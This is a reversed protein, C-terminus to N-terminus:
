RKLKRLEKKAFESGPHIYLAQQLCYLKQEERQVLHFLWLWDMELNSPDACAQAFLNDGQEVLAPSVMVQANAQEKRTFNKFLRALWTEQKTIEVDYTIDLSTNKYVAQKQM